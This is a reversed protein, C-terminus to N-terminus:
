FKSQLNPRGNAIFGQSRILRSIHKVIIIYYWIIKSKWFTPDYHISNKNPRNARPALLSSSTPLWCASSALQYVISLYFYLTCTFYIYVRVTLETPLASCQRQLHWLNSDEVTWLFVSASTVSRSIQKKLCYPIRVSASVFDTQTIVFM